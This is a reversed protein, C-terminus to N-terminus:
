CAGSRIRAWRYLCLQSLQMFRRNWVSECDRGTMWRTDVGGATRDPREVVHGGPLPQTNAGPTVPMYGGGMWPTNHTSRTRSHSPRRHGMTPAGAYPNAPGYPSAGLYAAQAGYPTPVAGPLPQQFASYGTHMAPPAPPPAYWPTGPPVQEAFTNPIPAQRFATWDELGGAGRPGRYDEAFGDRDVRISQPRGFDRPIGWDDTMPAPNSAPTASFQSPRNFYTGPDYGPGPPMGDTRYPTRQPAQTPYYAAYPNPAPGWGPPEAQAPYGAYPNPPIVRSGEEPSLASAHPPVVAPAAPAAGPRPPIFPSVPRSWSM